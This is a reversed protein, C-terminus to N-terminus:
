IQDWYIGKGAAMTDQEHSWQSEQETGTKELARSCAQLDVRKLNLREAVQTTIQLRVTFSSQLKPAKAAPGWGRGSDGARAIRDVHMMEDRKRREAEGRSCKVSGFRGLDVGDEGM